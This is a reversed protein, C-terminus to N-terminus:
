HGIIRGLVEEIHRRSPPRDSILVQLVLAEAAVALTEATISDVFRQLHEPLLRTWAASAPRLRPHRLAAVYIEYGVIARERDLDAALILDGLARALDTEPGLTRTWEHLSRREGEVARELAALLLDERSSYHYTTSGLPVDAQKAVARHTLREVGDRAIVTLAADAILQARSPDYRRQRV